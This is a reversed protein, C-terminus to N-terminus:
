ARYMQVFTLCTTSYSENENKYVSTIRKTYRNIDQLQAYEYTLPICVNCVYVCMFQLQRDENIILKM